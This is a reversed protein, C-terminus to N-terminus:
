MKVGTIKFFVEADFNPLDKFSQKASNSWNNWQNTFAEKFPINKIYGGTTEHYPHYKKEQDSMNDSPIWLTTDISNLLGFATSDRFKEFTWDSPKNFMMYPSQITNFAGANDNGANAYGANRNGANYNGANYNGANYNGANDNGANDNGANDNGANAYGANRNGANYNGANYNGANDNGANAYGANYNGANYNGANAYGANRNGANAYGDNAFGTNCEGTNALGSKLFIEQDFKSFYEDSIIKHDFCWSLNDYVVKLLQEQTESGYARRYESSCANAEKAKVLLEEKLEQFNNM